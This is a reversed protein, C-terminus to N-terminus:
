GSLVQNLIQCIRSVDYPKAIYGKVQSLYQEGIDESPIGSAIVIKAQPMEDLLMRLLSEGSIKPLTWDLLVADIMAKKEIFMELGQQGDAAALVHYGFYQLMRAM